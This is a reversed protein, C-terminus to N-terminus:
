TGRAVLGYRRSRRRASYPSSRLGSIRATKSRILGVALASLITEARITAWPLFSGRTGNESASCITSITRPLMLRPLLRSHPGDVGVVFAVAEGLLVVGVVDAGGFRQEQPPKQQPFLSRHRDATPPVCLRVAPPFLTEVLRASNLQVGFPSLSEVVSM